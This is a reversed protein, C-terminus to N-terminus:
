IDAFWRMTARDVECYRELTPLEIDHVDSQAKVTAAVSKATSIGRPVSAPM